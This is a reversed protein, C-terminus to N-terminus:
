ILFYEPVISEKGNIFFFIRLDGSGRGGRVGKLSNPPDSCAGRRKKRFYIPAPDWEKRFDGGNKHVLIPSCPVL